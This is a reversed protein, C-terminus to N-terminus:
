LPPIVVGLSRTTLMLALAAAALFTGLPLPTTRTARRQVLLLVGILAGVIFGLYLVELVRPYGFAFGLWAGLKVDGFGIWRGASVAFLTGLLGGAVLAGVIADRVTCSIRICIDSPVVKGSLTVALLLVTAVVGAVVLEDPIILSFGDAFAVAVLLSGLVWLYVLGVPDTAVFWVGIFVAATVLEIAPYRWHIRVDCRRCRGRQLIYSVLPVLEYWRLTRGCVPCQSRTKVTPERRPLRYALVGLYSGVVLGLLASLVPM